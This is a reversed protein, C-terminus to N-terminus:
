AVSRAAVRTSAIAAGGAGHRLAGVEQALVPLFSDVEAETNTIGFSLRATGRAEAASLRLAALTRSPEVVGSACAAGTSVAYGRLDLRILLAHADIGAFRVSSTNPLRPSAVGHVVVGPIERLVAAEFRDRLRALRRSRDELEEAALAAARGFGVIAPVNETGARVRSEQSGGLLLPAFRAGRRLWLAAAGLPGHFKHAGVTLYDVGLAVVDVAVKGAAQVADCLVPVGLDRCRRAVEEVPQVTGLENNALMLAVLRTDPRVQALLDGAEVCGHPGPPVRAVDVGRAALFSGTTEISPHEFGSLVLHGGFDEFLARLVANNAETGSAMFVVERPAAHLLRAVEARASEIAERAAQGYRHASSPNGHRVGLWEVMVEAVRPDVPTTANHDFYAASPAL